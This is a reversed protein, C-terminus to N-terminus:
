YGRPTENLLYCVIEFFLLPQLMGTGSQFARVSNDGASSSLLSFVQKYSREGQNSLSGKLIVPLTSQITRPAYVDAVQAINELRM